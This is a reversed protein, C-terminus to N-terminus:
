KYSMVMRLRHSSVVALGFARFIADDVEIGIKLSITEGQGMRVKVSQDM